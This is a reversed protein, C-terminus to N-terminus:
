GKVPVIIGSGDSEKGLFRMVLFVSIFILSCGALWAASFVPHRAFTAVQYFGTASVYALGTTWAAIFLTWRLNTERYVAAMAAVCPFYMLIFLMYAIAGVKGDFLKGMAGFTGASVALGEAAADISSTDGISLGLPDTLTDAVGSLNDPITQVAERLAASLSFAEDEEGAALNEQTENQLYIADLTGVVAEKAFVGTFIGVTAPWNDQEIGMPAFIPTVTRSLSALLSDKSDDHGISGDMSMTNLLALLAVMPVLIRTAKLLFSKLRDWTRLLVSKVTPVHYPPLEMVFPTINGKLLTYKLILGTLVAFGIGALYLLFVVNQGGVPFFAAAFLAYVPLRAGCSMFPNMMITLTRDRQNELTRTAMIAPVNCGFGVLLPVFSKGPLGLMRMFRDMVFAARAMYGSGELVALALFMFGIPPIFTAVTQIGGGVGTALVGILWAPANLGNLLATMGDVFVAGVAIDFFDIFAGGVNITFMFTLYMMLLFIPLGLVRNLVVKDIKDTLTKGLKSAHTVANATLWNIFGYRADAIAIDADEELQNVLRQQRKVLDEAAKNDLLAVYELDDELLKMALWDAKLNNEAAIKGLQATLTMAAEQIEVPYIIDAESIPNYEACQHVAKKLQTLGSRKSAAIPVVPIGLRDSLEETNILIQRSKAVDMKNLVVIMPVRMELLQTTLYLNREINAADVINVILDYDESLLYDRAVKEDSSHASLAYIGPIDVLEFDHGEFAYFGTKRDVTVGPWNGVMQRSGTLENFLTTKGCNPNGAVAIRLRKKQLSM